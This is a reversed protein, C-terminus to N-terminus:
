KTDIKNNANILLKNIKDLTNLDKIVFEKFKDRLVEILGIFEINKLGGNAEDSLNISFVERKTGKKQNIKVSDELRNLSRLFDKPNNSDKIQGMLKEFDDPNDKDKDLPREIEVHIYVKFPNNEYLLATKLINNLDQLQEKRQMTKKGHEVMKEAALKPSHKKNEDTM